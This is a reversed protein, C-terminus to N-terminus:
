RCDFVETEARLNWHREPNTTVIVFAGTKGGAVPQFSSAQALPIYGNPQDREKASQDDYYVLQDGRFCFFRRKWSKIVGVDGRKELYGELQPLQDKAIPSGTSSADRMSVVVSVEEPETIQGVGSPTLELPSPSPTPSKTKSPLEPPARVSQTATDNHSESPPDPKRDPVPLVKVRNPKPKASTTAVNDSHTAHSLTPAAEPAPASKVPEKLKPQPLPKKKVKEEDEALQQEAQEATTLSTISNAAAATL